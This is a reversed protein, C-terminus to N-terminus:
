KRLFQDTCAVRRLFCGCNRYVGTDGDLRVGASVYAVPRPLFRGWKLRPAGRTVDSGIGGDRPARGLTQASSSAVALGRGGHPGRAGRAKTAM